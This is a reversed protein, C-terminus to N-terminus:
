YNSIFVHLMIYINLDSNEDQYTINSLRDISRYFDIIHNYCLFIHKAYITVLIVFSHTNSTQLLYTPLYESFMQHSRTPSRDMSGRKRRQKRSYAIQNEQLRKEGASFQVTKGHGIDPDSHIRKPETSGSPTQGLFM